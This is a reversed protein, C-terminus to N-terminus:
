CYRWGEVILRKFGLFSSVEITLEMGVIVKPVFVTIGSVFVEIYEAAVPPLGYRVTPCEQLDFCCGTITKPLDLFLPKDQGRIITLAEESIKLM